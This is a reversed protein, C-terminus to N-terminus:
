QGLRRRQESVKSPIAQGGAGTTVDGAYPGPLTLTDPSAAPNFTITKLNM